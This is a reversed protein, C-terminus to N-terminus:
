VVPDADIAIHKQARRITIIAVGILTMAGGWILSTHLAEGLMVISLIIAVVPMLLVFCTVKQVENRALLAQWLIHSLSVLFAQYALVGGITIWDADPLVLWGQPATFLSLLAVFPVAAGNMIAIFTPAHVNKIQRMRIYSFALALTSGMTIFFGAPNQSIEPGGLTLLLGAFGIGLGITTRRGISEGLMLFGLVSAFLIQSQLLISMTGAPLMGMAIFLLGQHIVSMYIAIEVMKWFMAKGPWRMFPLFVLATVAFRLTIIVMPPLAGVGIKIAIINGGWIVIVALALLIDHFRM